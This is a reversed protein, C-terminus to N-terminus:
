KTIFKKLYNPEFIELNEFEKALFKKISSKGMGKSTSFVDKLFDINKFKDINDLLDGYFLYKKESDIEKEILDLTVLKTKRILNNHHDFITFYIEKGKADIVPCFFDYKWRYVLACLGTLSNLQTIAGLM